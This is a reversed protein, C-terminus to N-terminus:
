FRRSFYLDLTTQQDFDSTLRTSFSFVCFSDMQEGRWTYGIKLLLFLRSVIGMFPTGVSWFITRKLIYKKLEINGVTTWQTDISFFSYRLLPAWKLLNDRQKEIIRYRSDALLHTGGLQLFGCERFSPVLKSQFFLLFQLLFDAFFIDLLLTGTTPFTFYGFSPNGWDQLFSFGLPYDLSLHSNGM